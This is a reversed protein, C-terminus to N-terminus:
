AAEYHRLAAFVALGLTYISKLGRNEDDKSQGFCAVQYLSSQFLLSVM